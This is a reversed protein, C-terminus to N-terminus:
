TREDVPINTRFCVHLLFRCVNCTSWCWKGGRVTRIHLHVSLISKYKFNTITSTNMIYEQETTHTNKLKYNYIKTSTIPSRTIYVFGYVSRYMRLINLTFYSFRVKIATLTESNIIKTLAQHHSLM